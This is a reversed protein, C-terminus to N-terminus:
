RWSHCMSCGPGSAWAAEFGRCALLSSSRYLLSNSHEKCRVKGLEGVVLKESSDLRDYVCMMDCVIDNELVNIINNNINYAVEATDRWSL